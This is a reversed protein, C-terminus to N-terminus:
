GYLKIKNINHQLQKRADHLHSKSTGVSIELMDAIEQHSFGEIIYMNFVMRMREPLNQII